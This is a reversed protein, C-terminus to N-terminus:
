HKKDEVKKEMVVSYSGDNNRFLSIVRYGKKGRRSLTKTMKDPDVRGCKYKYQMFVEKSVCPAALRLHTLSPGTGPSCVRRM